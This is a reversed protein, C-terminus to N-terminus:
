PLRVREVGAAVVGALGSTALVVEKGLSAGEGLSSRLLGLELHLTVCQKWHKQGRQVMVDNTSARAFFSRAM